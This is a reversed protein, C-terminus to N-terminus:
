KGSSASTARRMAVTRRSANSSATLAHLGTLAPEFYSSPNYTAMPHIRSSIAAISESFSPAGHAGAAGAVSRDAPGLGLRAVVDGDVDLRALTAVDLQELM